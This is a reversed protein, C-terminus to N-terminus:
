PQGDAVPEPHHEPLALLEGAAREDMLRKLLEIRADLEADSMEDM